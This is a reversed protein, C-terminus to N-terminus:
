HKVFFHILQCYVVTCYVVNVQDLIFSDPTILKLVVSELNLSPAPHIQTFTYAKRYMHQECADFYHKRALLGM